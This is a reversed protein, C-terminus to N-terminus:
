LKLLYLLTWEKQQGERHVGFFGGLVEFDSWDERENSSYAWFPAVGRTRTGTEISELAYYPPIVKVDLEKTRFRWFIPVIVHSALGEKERRFYLPFFYRVQDDKAKWEWYLPFFARSSREPGSRSWYLPFLARTKEEPYAADRRYYPGILMSSRDKASSSWFGPAIVSRTQEEDDRTRVYLPFLVWLRSEDRRSQWYFPFFINRSLDDGTERWFLPLLTWAHDERHGHWYLPFFFRKGRNKLSNENGYYLLLWTVRYTEKGTDADKEERHYYLPFVLDREMAATEKWYYPFIAGSIRRNPPDQPNEVDYKWLPFPVTPMAFSKRRENREYGFLPDFRHSFSKRDRNWSGMLLYRTKLSPYGEKDKEKQVRGLLPLLWLDSGRELHRYLYFPLVRHSDALFAKEAPPTSLVVDEDHPDRPESPSDLPTFTASSYEVSKTVAWFPFFGSEKLRQGTFRYGLLVSKIKWAPRRFNTYLPFLVSYQTRGRDDWFYPFVAGQTVDGNRLYYLVPLFISAGRDTSSKRYFPLLTVTDKNPRHTKWFLFLFSFTDKELSYRRYIPFIFRWREMKRERNFYFPLVFSLREEPDRLFAALPPIITARSDESAFDWFLPFLVKQTETIKGTEDRDAKWYYNLFFGRHHEPDRDRFFFPSLFRVRDGDRRWSYLPFIGHSRTRNEFDASISFIWSKFAYSDPEERYYLFPFFVDSKGGWPDHKFFNLGTHGYRTGDADTFRSMVPTIWKRYGQPNELGFYLPLLMDWRSMTVTETSSNPGPGPGSEDEYYLTRGWFIPFFSRLSSRRTQWRFWPIAIQIDRFTEEDKRAFRWYVPFVVQAKSDEASRWYYPIGFGQSLKDDKYSWFFPSYFTRAAQTKYRLYFPLFLDWTKPSDGLTRHRWYLPLLTWDDRRENRQRLYLPSLSLRSPGSELDFYVPFLVRTEAKLSKSHYYPGWLSQSGQNDEQNFHFPLFIRLSEGPAASRYYFPALLRFQQDPDDASWYLLLAM